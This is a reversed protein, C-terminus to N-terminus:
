KTVQVWDELNLFPINNLHPYVSTISEGTKVNKWYYKLMEENNDQPKYNITRKWYDFKEDLVDEDCEELIKIDPNNIFKDYKRKLNTVKVVDNGNLIIACKKMIMFKFNTARSPNSGLSFTKSVETSVMVGYPLKSLKTLFVLSM